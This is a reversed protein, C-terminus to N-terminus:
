GENGVGNEKEKKEKMKGTEKGVETENEKKRRM